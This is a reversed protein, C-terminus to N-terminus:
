NKVCVLWGRWQGNVTLKNLKLWSWIRGTASLIYYVINFARGASRGPFKAWAARSMGGGVLRGRGGVFERPGRGPTGTRRGPSERHHSRPGPAQPRPIDM